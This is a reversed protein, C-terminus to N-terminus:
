KQMNWLVPGALSNKKLKIKSSIEDHQIAM